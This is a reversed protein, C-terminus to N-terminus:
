FTVSQHTMTLSVSSDYDSEDTVYERRRPMISAYIGKDCQRTQHKKSRKKPKKAFRTLRDCNFYLHLQRVRQRTQHKKSRKPVSTSFMRSCSVIDRKISKQHAPSSCVLTKLGPITRNHCFGIHADTNSLENKKKQRSGTKGSRNSCFGTVKDCYRKCGYHM